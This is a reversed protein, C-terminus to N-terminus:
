IVMGGDASIVQGTIFDSADSYLFYCVKAIDEPAGLEVLKKLVYACLPDNIRTTLKGDSFTGAGGEGFQVNSNVDLTKYEIFCQIDREREEM